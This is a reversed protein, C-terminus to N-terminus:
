VDLNEQGVAGTEVPDGISHSTIPEKAEVPGEGMTKPAIIPPTMIMNYIPM